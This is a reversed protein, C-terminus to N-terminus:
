FMVINFEKNWEEELRLQDKFDASSLATIYESTEKALSGAMENGSIGAHAKTWMLNIWSSDSNLANLLM